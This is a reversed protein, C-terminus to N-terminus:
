TSWNFYDSSDTKHRIAPIRKIDAPLHNAHYLRVVGGGDSGARRHEEHRPLDLRHTDLHDEGPFAGVLHALWWDCHPMITRCGIM